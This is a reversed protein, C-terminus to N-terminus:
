RNNATLIEGWESNNNIRKSEIKTQAMQSYTAYIMGKGMFIQTQIEQSYTCGKCLWLKTILSLFYLCLENIQWGYKM